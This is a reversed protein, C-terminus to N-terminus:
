ARSQAAAEQRRASSDTDQLATWFPSPAGSWSVYLQDRARTCAVFLLSRERLVDFSHQLPDEQETTLARALPMMADSVGCVAICRYELGKANHMTAVSITDGHNESPVDPEGIALGQRALIQAVDKRQRNTRVAVGIEGPPVGSQLWAGLVEGLAEYEAESTPFGQMRPKPGRLASRYGQLDDMSGDLDDYSVGHLLSLSWRLIEYTTRYNLRLKAGRGRIDIGVAGLSIRRDYIRQHADGVVFLDNSQRPVIARLLRWQAPHLDQAEDVVVHRFKTLRSASVADAAAAAVQLHTQAGQEDLGKWVSELVKWIRARQSRDLRVGRGRRAAAFYQERSRVDQALIVQEWEQRVFEPSHELGQATIEAAITGRLEEDSVIRRSAPSQLMRSALADINVVDVRDLIARSGALQVLQQELALALRKTFTTLLVQQASPDHLAKALHYARHLAVVTKGTGPGGLVRAPGDYRDKYALRRQAPHLFIRWHALPQNLVDALAGASEVVYFMTGSAPHQAAAGIDSPPAGSPSAEALEALAEEPTYGAVLMQLTLGQTHPLRGALALADSESQIARISPLLLVDLGVQVFHEDPRSDFFGGHAPPGATPSVPTAAVEVVDYVELAGTVHNVTLRRRLCWETAEDHPLVDILVFVEGTAPAALIGRVGQNVRITRVNPDLAGRIPELHLSKSRALDDFKELLRRVDRQVPSSLKAFRELFTKALVLTPM